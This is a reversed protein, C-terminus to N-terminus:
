RAGNASELAQVWAEQGPTELTGPRVRRVVEIAQRAPWGQMVLLGAALTGTRGLGAACHLLVREGRGLAGMVAQVEARQAPPQGGALVGMDPVSLHLWQLGLAGVRAGLDPVGYRGFEEPEVLCLVVSAGWGRIARLDTEVDRRWPRGRGDVGCRGPFHSMGLRGGGPWALEDIRLAEGAAGRALMESAPLAAHPPHEFATM